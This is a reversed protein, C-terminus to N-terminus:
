KSIDQWFLKDSYKKKFKENLKNQSVCIWPIYKEHKLLIDLKNTDKCWESVDSNNYGYEELTEKVSFRNGGM